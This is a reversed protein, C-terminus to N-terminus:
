RYMQLVPGYNTFFDSHVHPLESYHVKINIFKLKLRIYELILNLINCLYLYKLFINLDSCCEKLDYQM